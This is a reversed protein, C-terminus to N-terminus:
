FRPVGQEPTYQQITRSLAVNEFKKLIPYYRDYNETDGRDAFLELAAGYAYLPGWEPQAPIDQDNVLQAPLVFGQMRIQYVQDPVPMFQFQNQFFLVGQPRNAQYAIYKDYVTLSSSPANNFTASFQGTAYNLTGSGDGALVGLGIVNYTAQIALATTVAANFNLVWAGTTYDITGTGGQSGSLTGDGNDSFTEPSTSGIGGVASFTGIQVPIASLTGSYATGGNGTSITLSSVLAEGTDQLVQVSDTIFYSGIIIPFGQTQGTFTTQSGDGAAVSDVNYQQPWDQYFIDPDEYFILPFGDAYAGPSDTLYSGPFAYTNIGPTTKFDLFNNQIQVKLESPMQYTGYNNIYANASADSLQDASPMGTINRLKTRINALNWGPTTITSM